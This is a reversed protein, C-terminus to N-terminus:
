RLARALAAEYRVTNARDDRLIPAAAVTDAPLALREGVETLAAAHLPHDARSLVLLFNGAPGRPEMALLTVHPFAAHATKTLAALLSDGNGPAPSVVNAIVVGGPRLRTALLGFFEETMVHPPIALSQYMDLAIVNYTEKTARLFRRGDTTHITLNVRPALRFFTTALRPLEPDIEVADTVTTPYRESLIRPLTFAGGGLVAIRERESLREILALMGQTYSFVPGGTDRDEGSMLARDAVLYRSTAGGRLPDPTDIILVHQYPTSEEHILTPIFWAWPIALAPLALVVTSVFLVREGRTRRVGLGLGGLILLIVAMGLITWRLGVVPVLFFGGLLSGGISGITSVALIEGSARGPAATADPHLRVASPAVMGLLTSPLSFLLISAVLPGWTLPLALGIFPMVLTMLVSILFGGVGAGAIAGFLVRRPATREVLVGGVWYGLSLCGLIVALVSALVYVSNGFYPALLRTATVELLLTAAGAITIIGFLVPRNM